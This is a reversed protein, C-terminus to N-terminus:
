CLPTLHPMVCSVTVYLQAVEAGAVDGTNTVEATVELLTDYVSGSAAGLTANWKENTKQISTSDPAYAEAVTVASIWLTAPRPPRSSNKVLARQRTGRPLEPSAEVESCAKDPRHGVTPRHPASVPALPVGDTWARALQEPGCRVFHQSCCGRRPDCGRVRTM